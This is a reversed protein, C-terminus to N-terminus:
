HAKLCPRRHPISGWRLQHWEVTVRGGVTWNRKDEFDAQQVIEISNFYVKKSRCVFFWFFCLGSDTLLVFYIFARVLTRSWPAQHKNKSRNQMCTPRCRRFHGIFNRIHRFHRFCFLHHFRFFLSCITLAIVLVLQSEIIPVHVPIVLDWQSKSIDLNINEAKHQSKLREESESPKLQDASGNGGPCHPSTGVHLLLQSCLLM